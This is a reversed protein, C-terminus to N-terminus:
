EARLSEAPDANAARRAPAWSALVAIALLLLAREVRGDLLRMVRRLGPIRPEHPM